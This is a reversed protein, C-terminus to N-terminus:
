LFVSVIKLFKHNGFHLHSHELVKYFLYFHLIPSFVCFKRVSVSQETSYMSTVVESCKGM